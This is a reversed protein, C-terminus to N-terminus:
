QGSHSHRERQLRTATDIVRDRFAVPVDDLDAVIRATFAELRENPTMRDMDDASLAPLSEDM